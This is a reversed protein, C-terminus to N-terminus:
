PARGADRADRRSFRVTYRFRAVLATPTVTRFRAHGFGETLCRLMAEPAGEATVESVAGDRAVTVRVAGEFPAGHRTRELCRHAWGGAVALQMRADPLAISGGQTPDDFRAASNPRGITGGGGGAAAGPTTPSQSVAAGALADRLDSAGDHRDGPPARFAPPLGGDGRFLAAGRATGTPLNWRRPPQASPRPQADANACGTALLVFAVTRRLTVM